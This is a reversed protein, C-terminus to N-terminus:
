PPSSLWRSAFSTHEFCPPTVPRGLNQRADGFATFADGPDDDSASYSLRELEPLLETPVGDDAQLSRSIKGVLGDGVLLSKISSFSGLAERWRAPEVESHMESWLAGCELILHEVASSVAGLARFFQATHAARLNTPRCTFSMYFSFKNAGRLVDVWANAGGEFFVFRASGCRFDETSGMFQLLYLTSFTLQDIFLVQFKELLPVTIRPLLAELYASVGGFGFWRLKPLVVRTAIPTLLLRRQADCSPFASSFSVRLTELQSMHSLWNLLDNPSFYASPPVLQLSLTVLGVHTM